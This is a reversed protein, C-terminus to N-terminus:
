LAEPIQHARIELGSLPGQDSRMADIAKQDAASLPDSKLSATWAPMTILYYDPSAVGAITARDARDGGSGQWRLFGYPLDSRPIQSRAGDWVHSAAVDTPYSLQKLSALAQRWPPTATASWTPLAVIPTGAPSVAAGIAAAHPGLTVVVKPAAQAIVATLLATVAPHTVATRVTTESAGLSDVPLTRLIAYRKTLGAALLWGQLRQGAEGTLARTLFVDDQSAQDALVLVSPHDLRGRYSPGFGFSPHAPLGLATFDPWDLNPRSGTLLETFDGPGPDYQTPHARGPEVPVDGRNQSYGTRSGYGVRYSVDAGENNYAGASSFLQISTQEDRRNSSTGGNGLRWTTGFPFDAFPSAASRYRYSAASSRVAGPDVPLWGPDAHAWGEIQTVAAKFGAVIAAIDGDPQAAGGPHPVGVLRLGARIVGGNAQQLKEPDGHGGHAQLWTVCSEKAARGVAIVLRLDQTTAALDLIRGRHNAIPSHPDQALAPFGGVYQGNIPYVFTNLFLYSRTIGLHDLVYQLRAGTGGTFARHSLCEDQAGEQGIVLVKATGPATRGRYFMPGFQWRFRDGSFALGLGRYNPTSAFLDAWAPDPGADFETLPGRNARFDEWM